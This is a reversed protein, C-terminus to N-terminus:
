IKIRSLDNKEFEDVYRKTHESLKEKQEREGMAKIGEVGYQSIFDRQAMREILEAWFIEDNYDQQAKIVEKDEEFEQTPFYKKVNEDYEVLTGCGFNKADFFIQQETENFKQIHDGSIKIGNVMWNGLYVLKMLTKYQEPTYEM